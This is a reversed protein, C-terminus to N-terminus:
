FLATAGMQIGEYVNDLEKTSNQERWKACVGVSWPTRQETAVVAWNLISGHGLVNPADKELAHSCHGHKKGGM